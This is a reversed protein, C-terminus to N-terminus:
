DDGLLAGRKAMLGLMREVLGDFQNDLDALWEPAAHLAATQSWAYVFGSTHISPPVVEYGDTGRWDLGPRFATRNRAMTPLFLLHRGKGTTAVPGEPLPGHEATLDAISRSGDPGDVDLLDFAVGTRVGINADPSERWWREVVTSDFTADKLGHPTPPHKGPSGCHPRGCSCGTPTPEYLPLVPWGLSAYHRAAGAAPSGSEPLLLAPM